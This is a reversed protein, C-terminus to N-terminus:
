PCYLAGTKFTTTGHKGCKNRTKNRSKVWRKSSIASSMSERFTLHGRVFANIIRASLSPNSGGSTHGEVTKSVAVNLREAMEGPM